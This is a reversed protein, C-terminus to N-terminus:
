YNREPKGIPAESEGGSIRAYTWIDGEDDPFSFTNNNAGIALNVTNGAIVNNAVIGDVYLTNGTLSYNGTGSQYPYLPEAVFFFEYTGDLHFTWTSNSSDGSMAGISALGWSGVISFSNRDAEASPVSFTLVSVLFGAFLALLLTKRKM